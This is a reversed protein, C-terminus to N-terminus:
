LQWGFYVVWFMISPSIFNWQVATANFRNKLLIVKLVRLWQFILYLKHLHCYLNIIKLRITGGFGQCSSNKM